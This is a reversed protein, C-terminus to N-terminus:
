MLAKLSRLAFVVGRFFSLDNCGPTKLDGGGGGGSGRCLEKEMGVGLLEAPKNNPVSSEPFELESPSTDRYKESSVSRIYLFM